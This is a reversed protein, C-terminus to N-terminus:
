NVRPYGFGPWTLGESKEIFGPQNLGLSEGVTQPELHIPQSLDITAFVQGPMSRQTQQPQELMM